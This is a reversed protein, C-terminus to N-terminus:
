KWSHFSTAARLFISIVCSPWKYRVVADHTKWDVAGCISQSLAMTRPLQMWCIVTAVTYGLVFIPQCFNALAKVTLLSLGRQIKSVATAVLLGV